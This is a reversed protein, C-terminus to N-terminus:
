QITNDFYIMAELDLTRQKFKNKTENHLLPSPVITLFEQIKKASKLLHRYQANATVRSSFIYADNLWSQYESGSVSLRAATKKIIFESNISKFYNNM